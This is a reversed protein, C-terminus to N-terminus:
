WEWRGRHEKLAVEASGLANEEWSFLDQPERGAGEDRGASLPGQSAAM